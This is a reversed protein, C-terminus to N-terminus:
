ATLVLVVGEIRLHDALQDHGDVLQGFVGAQAKHQQAATAPVEAGTGVQGPHLLRRLQVEVGVQIIGVFQALQHVGQMAELGRGQGHHM